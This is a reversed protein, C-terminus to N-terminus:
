QSPTKPPRAFSLRRLVLQAADSYMDDYLRAQEQEMALVQSDDYPFYRQLLINGAPMWERRQNDYARLSVTYRLMYELVHGSGSLALIQKDPTEAVIDLILDAKDHSNKVDLRNLQLGQRLAKIFPTEAPAQIYISHFAFTEDKINHGRLHFGCASLLLVTILLAANRLM